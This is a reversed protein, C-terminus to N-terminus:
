QMRLSLTAQRPLMIDAPYPLTVQFYLPLLDDRRSTETPPFRQATGRGPQASLGPEHRLNHSRCGIMYRSKKDEAENTKILRCGKKHPTSIIRITLAAFYGTTNPFKNSSSCHQRSAMSPQARSTVLVRFQCFFVVFM